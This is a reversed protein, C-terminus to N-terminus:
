TEANTGLVSGDLWTTALFVLPGLVYVHVRSCARYDVSCVEVAFLKLQLPGVSQKLHLPSWNLSKLLPRGESGVLGVGCNHKSYM